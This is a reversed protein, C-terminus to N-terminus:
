QEAGPESPASPGSQSSEEAPTGVAPASGQESAEHKRPEAVPEPKPQAKPYAIRSHYITMLRKIFAEKIIEVDRFSLTSENHLGDAIQGDIIKNVLDTIAERTHDKLSRSAAEVSDAMMLVSTERSQPNPGPYSYPASDVKGDPSKRCANIYFYKALGKGHHESIFRRVVAPLGAKEAIKLGDTVHAIVISASREPPLADHPNVGHQNETFFAPNNLKGIDHYLAGARVLQVDAGIRSAADSALNSVAIAHQFTGPCENSLRALLPNNIDALEVLTVTSIFGFVKEVLFMLVYGMSTLAANIALFIFMFKNLGEFSGNMLTELAVYAAIYTIAVYLSTRLLEARRSLVRLSYVAACSASFQLFIYELAFATTAACILTLCASVMLACRGDFFVIMLIPVIMMPAMYIGHAVFYNLAIGILFFLTVLLLVFLMARPNNFMEREFFFFYILMAAMVLAVFVFQGAWRLFVLQRDATHKRAMMSEYTQLNTYDQSSIVAGKDIITQGQLIIGRDATLTLYEYEYHRRSQADNRTYNPLLLNQLAARAFYRHLATDTIASDLYLYADRPSTFSSTGMESLVNQELIRIRPLRGAAIEDKTGIDVVGSAYVRRLEAGLRRANASGPDPLRSIITDILLQNVEYIPVFHNDLTDRAALITASDPHVPIDFPAILKAYNWPRGQQYVFQNSEPHPYFWVIIFVAAAAALITRVLSSASIKM